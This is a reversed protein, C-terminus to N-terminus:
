LAIGLGINHTGDFVNTARYAYDITFYKESNKKLPLKFSAGASIGSYVNDRILGETEGLDYKYAGRLMFKDNLSYEIGGGLQDRSFSHATFNGLVTIRHMKGAYFDYAVGINLVSPLEVDSVNQRYTLEYPLEGDPNTQTVALGQGSFKLPSGVNRLSIGLHFNDKPGSVYQVGADIAFGFASVDQTSESVGRFLFGVSIKNEFTYSYGIGINFWNPSFTTGTGEPNQGTTVPIDGFDLAMLSFGIAGSEGVKQSLGIANQNIDTTVMYRAHSVNFDTRNIRSMGAVNLRMAEVGSIYATTMSHLGASRAWPNMLLEPAGAEGQRDPNGSYVTGQTLLGVSLILVFLTFLKNM